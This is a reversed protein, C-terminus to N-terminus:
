DTHVVVRFISLRNGSILGALHLGLATSTKYSRIICAGAVVRKHYGLSSSACRKGCDDHVAPVDADDDTDIIQRGVRAVMLSHLCAHGDAGHLCSTLVLIATWTETRGRRLCRTCAHQRPDGHRPPAAAAPRCRPPLAFAPTRSTRPM